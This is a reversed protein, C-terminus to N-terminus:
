TVFHFFILPEEDVWVGGKDERVMYNSINWPAANAAQHRVVVVGPFRNPWTDLYKQVAGEPIPLAGDGQYTIVILLHLFLVDVRGEHRGM